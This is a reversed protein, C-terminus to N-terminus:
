IFEHIDRSGRYSVVQYPLHRFSGVYRPAGGGRYEPFEVGPLECEEAVIRLLEDTLRHLDDPLLFGRHYYVMDVIVHGVASIVGVDESGRTAGVEVFRYHGGLMDGVIHDRVAFPLPVEGVIKVLCVLHHHIGFEWTRELYRSRYASVSRVPRYRHILAVHLM